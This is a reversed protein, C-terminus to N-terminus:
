PSAHSLDVYPWSRGHCNPNSCFTQTEHCGACSDDFADRHDAIWTTAMHNDPQWTSKFAVEPMPEGEPVTVPITHCITCHLRISQTEDALHKGDHCRFCGPAESHALNDPYTEHDVEAEPFHSIKYMDQLVDVVYTLTAQREAYIDPYTDRYFDPIAALAAMTEEFGAHGEMITWAERRLYPLDTPLLGNAMAEDLLADTSEFVHTARNHCDICDMERIEYQQLAEESLPNTVDVYTLTEGNIQARVWPINQRQPDTAIYEIKNEIHWHIGRGQGTRETGGGIKVLMYTNTRSNAADNAFHPIEVARDTYFVEPWHCHECVDRAPRLTEVPSPIPREYTDTTYLYLERLGNLKAGLEAALGPGVHCEACSVHAHFSQQYMEYEPQLSHCITGCFETSATYEFLYHFGLFGVVAASVILVLTSIIGRRRARVTDRLKLMAPQQKRLLVVVAVTGIVGVGIVAGMVGLLINRGRTERREQAERQDIYTQRQAVLRDLSEEFVSPQASVPERMRGLGNAKEAPYGLAAFDLRGDRTHCNDCTLASEKPAVQHNLSFYLEDTVPEWAGSYAKGTLEAGQAVAKGLDGTIFYASAKIPVLEGSKADAPVMSTVYKWPYIRAEADAISGLPGPPYAQVQGSWWRYVPEVNAELQQTAAYLGNEQLVPQTWDKSVLTPLQPDRAILPVHCMQCAVRDLHVNIAAMDGTHKAEHCNTCAVVAEPRDVAKLDASGGFRHDEVLHCDVCRLGADVHVDVGLTPVVGHKFNPGGGSGLHCRLCMENTSRGANQAAALTDVGDAPALKVTNGEKVVTRNYDPAHCLLCDVNKYDAETLADPPNPKAGFGVHCQACGGPQPPKSADQPQLLGLWNIGTVSAPLGCYETGMGILELESGEVNQAVGMWSYHMSETVQKGADPHCQLCTEPGTYESIVKHPPGDLAGPEALVQLIAAREPEYGLAVFDLRGNDSHCSECTLAAEKPAVMHNQVWFWETSVWGLEGSYDAGVYGMGAAVAKDWDWGKWYADVDEANNPFLNPIVLTDNGADYPQVGTFRKFPYIKGDERTGEFDALTVLAAADITDEVTKYFVNGNWWQYYPTVNMESTFTGKQGDYIVHGEADKTVLPKGAEDKEGATSWDWSMKTAQGRAYAPIHCTQCAVHETHQALVAGVESEQHPAREGSHCDECLVPTEGNYIRGKIEHAKGAHCTACTFDGGDPSLHVDLEQSPNTLTSDLDGHKVADGGGGFFHCSGCNTRGPMGVNQAVAVLDVPEWMKGSGGPFEKAEGLVPMGSGAPFKKYGGTTDHCVLCDVNTETAAEFFTNDKYGYGVHCSTCRPENSPVAVCYNNIVNNKGLVQGTIPDVYEWTWHVTGMVQQAANIHCTLCAATVDQPSEFPGALASFLSHDVGEEAAVPASIFLWSGVGVILLTAVFFLWRHKTQM